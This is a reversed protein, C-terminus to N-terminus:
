SKMFISWGLSLMEAAEESIESLPKDLMALKHEPNLVAEKLKTKSKFALTSTELNRDTQKTQESGDM